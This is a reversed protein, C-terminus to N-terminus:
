FFGDITYLKVLQWYNVLLREVIYTLLIIYMYKRRIKQYSILKEFYVIFIDKGSM